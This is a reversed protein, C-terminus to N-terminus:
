IFNAKEMNKARSGIAPMRDVILTSINALAMKSIMRTTGRIAAVMPGNTFARVM